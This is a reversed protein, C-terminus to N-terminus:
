INEKTIIEVVLDKSSTAASDHESAENIIYAAKLIAQSQEFLRNDNYHIEALSDGKKVRTGIKKHLLIGVSLDVPDTEKGRGAGLIKAAEGVKSALITSIVGDTPAELIWKCEAQPLIDPNDIVNHEGGQVRIMDRFKELALGNKINQILMKRGQEISKALGGVMLMAAGLEVTLKTTDEPGDGRLIDISERIELSNGVSFGLPTHMDTLFAIVERNMKQGVSVMSKALLRAEDINKFFAGDGFKVDLILGQIGEAMKKSMISSTILSINEVTSTENRLEYMRKDAPVITKTTGTIFCGIARLIERIEPISLNTRFGPIAELKDLTGGTFGLGRGSIMPVLLGCSAVLPALPISIKDGVGGTSHKDVKAGPIDDVPLTEGSNLMASTLHYTEDADMGRIFTAMVFAAMQRESVQGGAVYERIFFEIEERSLKRGDRKAAVINYAFM